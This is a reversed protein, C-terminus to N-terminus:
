LRRFDCDKLSAFLSKHYDLQSTVLAGALLVSTSLGQPLCIRYPDGTHIRASKTIQSVHDFLAVISHFVM